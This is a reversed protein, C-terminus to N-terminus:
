DLWILKNAHVYSLILSVGDNLVQFGHRSYFAHLAASFAHVADCSREFLAYYFGLLDISIAMRPQSPATPFLGHQVLNQPITLCLCGNVSMDKFDAVRDIFLEVRTDFCTRDFFLCKIKASKYKGKCKMPNCCIRELKEGVPPKAEKASTRNTYELYPDLLTPLTTNWSLYLGEAAENPTIRRKKKPSSSDTGPEELARKSPRPYEPYQSPGSPAPSAGFRLPDEVRDGGTGFRKLCDIREELQKQLRQASPVVATRARRKRKPQPLNATFTPM